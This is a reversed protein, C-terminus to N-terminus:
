DDLITQSFVKGITFGLVDMIIRIHCEPDFHYLILAKVFVQRLKTFTLRAKSTFFNSFGIIKKSKSMKQNKGIKNDGFEISDIKSGGIKSGGFKCKGYSNVGVGGERLRTTSETSGSTKLTM